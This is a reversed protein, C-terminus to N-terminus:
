RLFDRVGLFVGEVVDLPEEAEEPDNKEGNGVVLEVASGINPQIRNKGDSAAKKDKEEEIPKEVAEGENESGQKEGDEKKAPHDEEGPPIGGKRVEAVGDLDGALAVM